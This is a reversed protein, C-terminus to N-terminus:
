LADHFLYLPRIGSAYRPAHCTVWNIIWWAIGQSMSPPTLPTKVLAREVREGDRKQHERKQKNGSDRGDNCRGSDLSLVSKEPNSFASVFIETM